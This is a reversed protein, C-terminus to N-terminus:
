LAEGADLKTEEFYNKNEEISVRHEKLWEGYPHESAIKQKIDYNYLREGTKLDIAFMQGPGLRGKEIVKDQPLINSGVESGFYIFGDDTLEFRAPRLGNRDLSAGVINGDSFTINAPGDWPEQMGAYYEYFDIIEQKEDLNPQNKYAEPVLMMMAKFPSYGNHVLLEVMQDLAFSDSGTTDIIPLIEKLEEKYVPSEYVQERASAWNLNGLYTNIEGNHGIFKM